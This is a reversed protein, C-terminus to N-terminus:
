RHSRDPQNAAQGAYWPLSEVAQAQELLPTRSKAVDSERASRNLRGAAAFAVITALMTFCCLKRLSMTLFSPQSRVGVITDQVQYETFWRYLAQGIETHYLPM